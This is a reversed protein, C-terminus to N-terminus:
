SQRWKSLLVKTLDRAVLTRTRFGYRTNSLLSSLPKRAVRTAMKVAVVVVLTATIISGKKSNAYFISVSIADDDNNDDDNDDDDVNVDCGSDINHDNNDPFQHDDDAVADDDDDDDDDDNSDDGDDGDENVCFETSV